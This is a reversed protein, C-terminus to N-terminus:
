LGSKGTNLFPGFVARESPGPLGNEPRGMDPYPAFVVQGTILRIYVIKLFATSIGGGCQVRTLRSRLPRKWTEMTLIATFIPAFNRRYDM